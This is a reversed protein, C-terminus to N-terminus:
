ALMHLLYPHKDDDTIVRQALKLAYQAQALDLAKDPVQSNLLLAVAPYRPTLVHAPIRPIVFTMLKVYVSAM